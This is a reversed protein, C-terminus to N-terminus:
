ESEEEKKIEVNQSEFYMRLAKEIIVTKPFGTEATYKDLTDVLESSVFFNIFKGDKKKRPM